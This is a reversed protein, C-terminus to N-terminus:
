KAVREAPVGGATTFSGAAYLAPGGGSGDDFVILDSVSGNMGSGLPTFGVGDWKAVGAAPGGASTFEGGVYLAPGGGSQDDFVTMAGVDGDLTQESGFTPIWAPLCGGSPQSPLGDVQTTGGAALGPAFAGASRSAAAIGTPATIVWVLIWVTLSKM